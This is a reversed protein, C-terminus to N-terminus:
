RRLQGGSACEEMNWGPMAGTAHDGDGKGTAPALTREIRLVQYDALTQDELVVTEHTPHDLTLTCLHRRSARLTRLPTEGVTVGGVLVAAGPPTTEVALIANGGTIASLDLPRSPTHEGGDQKGAGGTDAGTDDTGSGINPDDLAPRAPFMGDAPVAALVVGEAGLLSAEQVRRYQRRAARTMHRDLYAKAELATVRAMARGCRRRRLARGSSSAHVPRVAGGYGVLRDAGREGGDAIGGQGGRGGAVVGDCLGPEREQDPRGRPQRGLLLRGPVGLVTEAEALGGLNGYLLDIPYGDDEAAKPDADVPLLYGRGDNVGPVGHGSYFVVVESGGDPDLYSWLLGQPNARTGLADFLERRTADRLDIINEPDYGLM